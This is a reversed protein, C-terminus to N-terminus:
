VNEFFLSNMSEYLEAIKQAALWLTVFEIILCNRCCESSTAVTRHLIRVIWWIDITGGLRDGNEPFQCIGKIVMAALHRESIVRMM